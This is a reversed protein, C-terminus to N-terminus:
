CLKLNYKWVAPHKSQFIQFFCSQKLTKKMHNCDIEFREVYCSLIIHFKRFVLFIVHILNGFYTANVLDHIECVVPSASKLTYDFCFSM